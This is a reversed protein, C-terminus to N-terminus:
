HREGFTLNLGVNACAQFKDIPIVPLNNYTGVKGSYLDVGAHLNFTAINLSIGAGMNPGFTGTGYSGAISFWKIPTASIGARIENSKFLRGSKHTALMGVSFIDHLFTYKVGLNATLPLSEFKKVEGERLKFESLTSLDELKRSISEFSESPNQLDIENDGTYEFGGHSEAMMDYKWSIGGFDLVGLSVSLNRVPTVTVGLDLALGYGTPGFYKPIFEISELDLCGDETKNYGIYRSSKNIYADGETRIAEEGLDLDFDSAGANVSGLGFLAKGKVGVTVMDGIMFAKGYAVELFVKADASTNSLNYTEPSTGVKLAAFLDYPLYADAIARANIEFNGFSRNKRIGVSLVNLSAEAGFAGSGNIGGLFDSSSVASNFGTVLKGDSTPFLLTGAGMNSEPSVSVNTLAVGLFSKEPMLSPNIRYGYSYNDLFYGTKFVQASATMALVLFLISLATKKMEIM